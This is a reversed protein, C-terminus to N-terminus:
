KKAAPPQNLLTVFTGANAAASGLGGIATGGLASTSGLLLAGGVCGALPGAGFLLAAPASVVGAVAGGLLCGGVLGAAGGLYGGLAATTTINDKVGSVAAPLDANQELGATPSPAPDAYATGAATGLSAIMIASVVALKKANM